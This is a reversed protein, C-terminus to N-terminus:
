NAKETLTQNERNMKELEDLAEEAVKKMDEYAKTMEDLKKFNAAYAVFLKSFVWRMETRGLSMLMSEAAEPGRTGYTLIFQELWDRTQEANTIM